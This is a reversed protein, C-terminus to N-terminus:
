TRGDSFNLRVAWLWQGPEHRDHAWHALPPEM